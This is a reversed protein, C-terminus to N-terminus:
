GFLKKMYKIEKKKNTKKRRFRIDSTSFFDIGYSTWGMKNAM